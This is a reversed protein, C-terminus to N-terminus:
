KFGRRVPFIWQGISMGDVVQQAQGHPQFLTGFFLVESLREDGHNSGVRPGQRPIEAFELPDTEPLRSLVGPLRVKVDGRGLCRFFKIGFQFIAARFKESNPWFYDDNQPRWVLMLSM